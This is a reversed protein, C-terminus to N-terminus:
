GNSSVCDLSRVRLVSQQDFDKKYRRIITQMSTEDDTGPPHAIQLVYSAQRTITGNAGRWQGDASWFTLGAPFLPTVTREVFTRWEEPTVSRAVGDMTRDTGFYLTEMVWREGQPCAPEQNSACAGVLLMLALLGIVQVRIMRASVPASLHHTAM